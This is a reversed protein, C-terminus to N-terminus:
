TREGPPVLTTKNFLQEHIWSESLADAPALKWRFVEDIGAGVDVSAEHWDLGNAGYDAKLTQVNGKWLAISDRKCYLVHISANSHGPLTRLRAAFSRGPEQATQWLRAAEDYASAGTRDLDSEKFKPDPAILYASRLEARDGCVARLEHAFKVALHCGMSYGLVHVTLRKKALRQLHPEMREWRRVLLDEDSGNWLNVLCEDLTDLTQAWSSFANSEPSLQGQRFGGFFAGIRRPPQETSKAVTM